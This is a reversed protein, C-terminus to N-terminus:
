RFENKRLNTKRIAFLGGLLICFLGLGYKAYDAKSLSKNYDESKINQPSLDIVEKEIKAPTKSEQTAETVPNDVEESEQEEPEEVVEEEQTIQAEGVCALGQEKIDEVRAGTGGLGSVKTLDDISEFPRAVIIKEATPIGVWKIKDLDVASATNINIQGSECVASIFPIFLFIFILVFKKM